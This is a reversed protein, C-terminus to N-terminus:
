HTGPELGENCGGFETSRLGLKKGERYVQIGAQCPLVLGPIGASPFSLGLHELGPQHFLLNLAKLHNCALVQKLCVM